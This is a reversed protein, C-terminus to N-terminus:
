SPGEALGFAGFRRVSDSGPGCPLALSRRARILRSSERCGLRAMGPLRRGVFALTKAM